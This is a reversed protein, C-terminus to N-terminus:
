FDNFKGMFADKLWNLLKDYVVIDANHYQIGHDNDPFFHVDYNEIEKINLKDLLWLSNQLHVNDDATGHMILFRTSKAVAEVDSIRATDHYNTNETPLNMYRETYISNYFLWNTVPAVAMGFKFTDGQDLELTKLTTFGGYSWGWLAIKNKDIIKSNKKIYDSTITKLDRGEWFGIKNTSFSKFKWGKGDTGRPDIILVIADLTASVVDNFGLIYSDDVTQSGPGGYAHVLIPYKKKRNPDFNPPLIEIVNIEVPDKDGIKVKRPIRTPFNYKVLESKMRSFDSTMELSDLFKGLKADDDELLHLEVTSFIKQSAFEPGLYELSMFQGNDDSSFEYKGSKDGGLVVKIEGKLTIGTLHASMSGKINTLTYIIEENDNYVVKETDLVDFEGKSLILPEKSLPTDYYVLRTRDETWTKDIYGNKVRVIPSVKNIWGNFSGADLAEIETVSNENVKVMQKSLTKSRRDSVKVLFHNDDVWDGDYVISDSKHNFQLEEIKREDFSYKFLSVKPNPTGPKPYKLSQKIPYQNVSDILVTPPIDYTLGVNESEKVFYDVEYDMVETDNLTGFILQKSDPSTWFFKDRSLVEEEYVWDPKGNFISKSGSSTIREVKLDKLNQWYLDHDIGFVIKDGDDTFEAFHLLKLASPKSKDMDKKEPMLPIFENTIPKFLWYISFKSHRWQRLTDTVVLHYASSDDVSIKPNLIVDKIYFFNNEYPFQPSEFLVKMTNDVANVIVFEGKSGRTMYFGANNYNDHSKPYQPRNLWKIWRFGPSFRGQWIDDMSINKNEPDYHNLTLNENGFQVLDTKWKWSSSIDTVKVNAYILLLLLWMGFMLGSIIYCLHRSSSKRGKYNLLVDQFTPNDNFDEPTQNGIDLHQFIISTDDSELDKISSQDDEEVWNKTSDGPNEVMEYEESSM